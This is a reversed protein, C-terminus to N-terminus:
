GKLFTEYLYIIQLMHLMQDIGIISWFLKIKNNKYAHATVKSTIFDTATHTAFLLIHFETFYNFSNRDGVLLLLLCTLGGVQMTYIATHSLLAKINNSKKEAHDRFQFIFDCIFHFCIVCSLIFM